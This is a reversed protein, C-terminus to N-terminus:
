RRIIESVLSGIGIVLVGVNALIVPTITALIGDYLSDRINEFCSLRTAAACTICSRSEVKM